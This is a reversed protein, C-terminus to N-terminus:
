FDKKQRKAREQEIQQMYDLARNTAVSVSCELKYLSASGWPWHWFARTTGEQAARGFRETIQSALSSAKEPPCSFDWGSLGHGPVYLLTLKGQIDAVRYGQCIQKFADPPEGFQCRAKLAERVKVASSGWPLGAFGMPEEAAGKAVILLSAAIAVVLGSLTGRSDASSPL